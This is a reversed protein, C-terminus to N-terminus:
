DIIDIDSDSDITGCSVVTATAVVPTVSLGIAGLMTLIKKM